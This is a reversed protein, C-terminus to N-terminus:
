SLYTPNLFREFYQKVQQSNLAIQCSIGCDPLQHESVNRIPKKADDFTFLVRIAATKSQSSYKKTM